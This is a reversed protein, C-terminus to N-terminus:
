ETSRVGIALGQAEATHVMGSTIFEFGIEVADSDRAGPVGLAGRLDHEHTVVDAVAQRGLRGIGDLLEEFSPADTNWAALMEAVPVDHRADVQAATWPDEPMGDMRGNLADDVTGSLHAVLDHVSWKPCAPVPQAAREDDLARALEDIRARCGAYAAGLEGM